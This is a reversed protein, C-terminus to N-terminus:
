CVIGNVEITLRLAVVTLRGSRPICHGTGSVRSGAIGSKEQRNPTERIARSNPESGAVHGDGARKGGPDENGVILAIEHIGQAQEQFRLTHLDVGHM